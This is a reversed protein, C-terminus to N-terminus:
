GASPNDYQFALSGLPWTLDPEGHTVFLNLQCESIVGFNPRQTYRELECNIISFGINMICLNGIQRLDVRTQLSCNKGKASVAEMMLLKNCM